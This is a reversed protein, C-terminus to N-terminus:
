KLNVPVRSKLWAISSLVVDIVCLVIDVVVVVSGIMDSDKDVVAVLGDDVEVDLVGINEVASILIVVVPVISDVVVVDVFVVESIGVDDVIKDVKKVVLAGVTVDLSWDVEDAVVVVSDVKEVDNEVAVM